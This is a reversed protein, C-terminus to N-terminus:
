GKVQKKENKQEEEYKSLSKIDVAIRSCINTLENINHNRLLAILLRFLLLLDKSAEVMNNAWSYM